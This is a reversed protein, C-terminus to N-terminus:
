TLGRQYPAGCIASHGLAFTVRLPRTSVGPPPPPERRFPPAWSGSPGRELPCEPLVKPSLPVDAKLMDGPSVSSLLRAPQLHQPQRHGDSWRSGHCVFALLQSQEPIKEGMGQYCRDTCGM